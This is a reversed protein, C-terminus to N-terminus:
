SYHLKRMWFITWFIMTIFLLIKEKNSEEGHANVLQELDLLTLILSYHTLYVQTGLRERRRRFESQLFSYLLVIINVDGTNMMICGDM